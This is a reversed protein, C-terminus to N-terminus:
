VTANSLDLSRYNPNSTKYENRYNGLDTKYLERGRSVREYELNKIIYGKVADLDHEMTSECISYIGNSGSEACRKKGFIVQYGEFGRSVHDSIRISRMRKYDIDLYISSSSVSRCMSVRFQKDLLDKTFAYVIDAFMFANSYKEKMAKATSKCSGSNYSEGFVELANTINRLMSASVYNDYNKKKDEREMYGKAFEKLDNAMHSVATGKLDYVKSDRNSTEKCYQIITVAYYELMNCAELNRENLVLDGNSAFTVSM